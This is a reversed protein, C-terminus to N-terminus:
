FNGEAVQFVTLGNARWMKVVQDRDDFVLFVDTKDIVNNLWFEKLDNDPMFHWKGSDKEDDPRMHLEDFPVRHAELWTRTEDETRASRGSFIVIKFGQMSLSQAMHVVPINPKDLHIMQPDFFIDWDIQGNGKDAVKRREHIFALTGDLDFIVTKQRMVEFDNGISVITDDM